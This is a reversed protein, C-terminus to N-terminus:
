PRHASRSKRRRHASKIAPPGSMMHNGCHPCPRMREARLTAIANAVSHDVASPPGNGDLIEHVLDSADCPILFERPSTLWDISDRWFAAIKGSLRAGLKAPKYWDVPVIPQGTSGLPVYGHGLRSEATHTPPRKDPSHPHGGM